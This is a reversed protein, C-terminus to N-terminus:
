GLLIENKPDYVPDMVLMAKYNKQLIQLELDDGTGLQDAAVWAVALMKGTRWGMGGSTVYGIPQGDKLVPETGWCPPAAPEVALTVFRKAPPVKRQEDVVARGIYDKTTSCFRELAAAHPTVEATMEAGWSRYGKELRLMGMARGGMLILDYEAGKAMLVDFLAKQNLMPCHLEWGLEGSFSIRLAKCRVRGIEVVKSSMFPFDDFAGGSLVNLLERSRPGAIGFAAIQDTVNEIRVDFGDAHDEMWRQYLAVGLTAGVCYYTGDGVNEITIDGVIGGRDNLMLSLAMRGSRTPTKASSLNNLFAEADPGSICFKGYSSMESLGCGRAMALVENGVHDWWNPRQFSPEDKPEIGEPAYWLPREWGYAQGM